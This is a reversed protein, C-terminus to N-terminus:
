YYYYDLWWIISLKKWMQKKHFCKLYFVLVSFIKKVYPINENQKISSTNKADDEDLSLQSFIKWFKKIFNIIVKGKRKEKEHKNHQATLTFSHFMSKSHFAFFNSTKSSISQMVLSEISLKHLRTMWRSFSSLGCVIQNKSSSFDVATKKYRESERWCRWRRETACVVCLVCMIWVTKYIYHHTFIRWLMLRAGVDFRQYRNFKTLIEFCFGRVGWRQTM